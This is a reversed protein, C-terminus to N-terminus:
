NNLGWDYTQYTMKLQTNTLLELLKESKEPELYNAVYKLVETDNKGFDVSYWRLIRNVSAVKAEVDFNVGGNRVFDYAAEKLEKDINGPSYCRLAPGSRTGCVLAFHVLPEANSLSVKSRRDRVSFPKMLNYPPRQNGRLIGNHIFSLSYTCGGVVYKFDGLMKRRGLAGVPYGWLLIAHIAMMNYLNIFFALKEERSIDQLDVRQLEEVVRLYRAFEESGHISRYDVHKGDESTYAEFIAFSLYRLRSAIEVISKPKMDITGRPFNHCQSLIIPDHDLFRYLHNGDEFVNEDLVHWFFHKNALKRGLEIAEERELYQHESLFDTAESGLFCNTFRRLKYFRDKVVITERMKRVIVALEDVTGSSSIDDEGSFPPMPAAASPEQTILDQIRESLKGSEDMAKLESLGGALFENFFVKPVASSGTNKELELKRSPFIDINIEVYRLRKQRLFLRVEKSEQCGLRTYLIVRGKMPLPQVLEETCAEEKEERKSQTDVDWAIKFYIFPNWTSREATKQSAEKAQSGLSSDEGEKIGSNDHYEEDHPFKQRDEDRRRSLRHLFTSVSAVTSFAVTGKEKVFNKLTEAKEPWTPRQAEPGLDSSQAASSRTPEVGRIDTGDSAPEAEKEKGLNKEAVQKTGEQNESELGRSEESEINPNEGEKDSNLHEESINSSKLESHVEEEKPLDVIDSNLHEESINSSKLEYQAEEKKPPDVIDSNLHEESINSSKLECQAEEEKPLDVIDSNLHEESINSSKLECQEKEEKTLGVIDSDLQEESTNSSKLECHVEEEKPLDVVDKEQKESTPHVVANRGNFDESEM